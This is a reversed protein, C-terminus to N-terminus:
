KTEPIVLKPLTQQLDLIGKTMAIVSLLLKLVYEPDQSYENPDNLNGSDPDEKVMYRDMVWEIPTKGNILYTYVEEPINSIAIFQNFQIISKDGGKGFRMKEVRYLKEQDSVKESIEVKVFNNSFKEYELHLQALKRGYTVYSDFEKLLPVRPSEKKLETKYRKVFEPSSLVGYVYYFIDEKTLKRNYKERFLNLAWDTVGDIKSDEIDMGLLMEDSDKKSSENFFYLPYNKGTDM